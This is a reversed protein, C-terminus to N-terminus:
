SRGAAARRLRFPFLAWLIATALGFVVLLVFLTQVGNQQLAQVDSANPNLLFHYFCFFVVSFFAFWVGKRWGWIDGGDTFALPILAFFVGQLGILFATLFIPELEALAVPLFVTAVWLIVAGAFVALLVLAARKGSETVGILSPMVYTAGVIGYLYGPQFDLTRSLIVCGLAVAIGLWQVKSRTKITPAWRRHAYLDSGLELGSVAAASVFLTILLGLRELDLVGVEHDLFSEILSTALLVLLWMSVLRGRGYKTTQGVSRDVRSLYGVFVQPVLRGTAGLLEDRYDKLITNFLNSTLGFFLVCFLALAVNTGVVKPELSVQTPAVINPLERTLVTAPPSEPSSFRSTNGETDTASATLNPGAFRGLPIQFSFNGQNDVTVTGEFIQGQDARDSFIEVSSGAPATGRVIRTGVYTIIPPAVDTNAGALNQIGVGGNSYISNATITNGWSDSGHVRVGSGENHAIINGPGITNPGAGAHVSVGDGINGLDRTGSFDTGIHNAVIANRMTDSHSLNVGSQFNGSILNGEGPTTGGVFNFQAGDGIWVGAEANGLAQTGTVDTGIYNGSLTNNMTDRNAISVGVNGNSSIVNRQQPTAGGVLNHQAGWALVVGINGNGVAATGSADTGIYNGSITNHMARDVVVGNDRNGSIVNREGPASGGVVNHQAGEGIWVGAEGNGIAETGSADTGVYNGLIKNGVCEVGVIVVGDIQNGSILNGQGGATGGLINHAAADSIVVGRLNPIPSSGFVDTGIYNGVILNDNTGPDFIAVGTEGNGSIVNGQGTPGIGKTRDGGIVNHQAGREISLGGSPFFLIQLGRIVNGSSSITLGNSWEEPPLQSGDLIVGGDSADITIQGQALEPLASLVFITTSNDPPFVVPDFRVVAGAAAQALAERLTGAGSDASSTVVISQRQPAPVTARAPTAIALAVAVATAALFVKPKM